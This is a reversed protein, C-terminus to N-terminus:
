VGASETYPRAADLGSLERGPFQNDGRPQAGLFTGGGDGGIRLLINRLEIKAFPDIEREAALRRELMEDIGRRDRSRQSGVIAFVQASLRAEAGVEGEDVFFFIGHVGVSRRKEILRDPPKPRVQGIARKDRIIGTDPGLEVAGSLGVRVPPNIPRIAVPNGPKDGQEANFAGAEGRRQGNAFSYSFVEVCKASMKQGAPPSSRAYCLSFSLM